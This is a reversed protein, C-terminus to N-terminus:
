AAEGEGAKRPRARTIPVVNGDPFHLEVQDGRGIRTFIAELDGAMKDYNTRLVKMEAELQARGIADQLVDRTRPMHINIHDPM